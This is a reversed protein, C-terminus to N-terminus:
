NQSPVTNPQKAPHARKLVLSLSLSDWWQGVEVTCSCLLTAAISRGLMGLLLSCAEVWSQLFPEAWESEPYVWTQWLLRVQAEPPWCSLLADLSMLFCCSQQVLCRAVYWICLAAALVVQTSRKPAYNLYARFNLFFLLCLSPSSLEKGATLFLVIQSLFFNFAPVCTPTFGACSLIVDRM